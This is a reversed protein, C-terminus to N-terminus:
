KIDEYEDEKISSISEAAIDFNFNGVTPELSPIAVPPNETIARLSNNVKEITRQLEQRLARVEGFEDLLLRHVNEMDMVVRACTDIIKNINESDVGNNVGSGHDKAPTAVQNADVNLELLDKQSDDLYDLLKHEDNTLKRIAFDLKDITEKRLDTTRYYQSFSQFSIGMAKALKVKGLHTREIITKFENGNM